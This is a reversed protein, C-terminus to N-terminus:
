IGAGSVIKDSKRPRELAAAREQLWIELASRGSPTAADPNAPIKLSSRAAPLFPFNLGSDRIGWVGAKIHGTRTRVEGILATDEPFNEAPRPGAHSLVYDAAAAASLVELKDSFPLPPRTVIFASAISSSPTNDLLFLRTGPILDKTYIFGVDARGDPGPIYTNGIVSALVPATAGTESVNLVNWGSTGGWNYVVNNVVEGQAGTKIRPNRDQNHALLNRILSFRKTGDGILIGKSHHGKAHAASSQPMDLSNAIISNSLTIDTVKGYTSFNEDVAGAIGCHDIVINSATVGGTGMIALSDRDSGKAPGPRDGVFFRLHRILVDHTMVATRAGVVAVGPFPASEGAITLYPNQIRLESQLEISGAVEFLVTRPGAAEVAERLSGPGSDRLTTVICIRSHAPLLNRGSGAPTTAGFGLAGEFATLPGARLPSAILTAACLLLCCPGAKKGGIHIM